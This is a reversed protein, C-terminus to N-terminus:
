LREKTSLFSVISTTININSKNNGINSPLTENKLNLEFYLKRINRENKHQIKIMKRYDCILVNMLEIYKGTLTSSTAIPSSFVIQFVIQMMHLM